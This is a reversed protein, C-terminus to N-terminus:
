KNANLKKGYKVPYRGSRYWLEEKPLAKVEKRQRENNCKSCSLVISNIAGKKWNKNNRSVVHDLTAMNPPCPACDKGNRNRNGLIVACGCWYCHPDAKLLNRSRSRKSDSSM